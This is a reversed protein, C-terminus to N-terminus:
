AAGPEPLALAWIDTPERQGRLVRRGVFDLEGRGALERTSGAM